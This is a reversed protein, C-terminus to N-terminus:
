DASLPEECSTRVVFSIWRVSTFREDRRSGRMLPGVSRLVQPRQGLPAPRLQFTVGFLPRERPPHAFLLLGAVGFRLAAIDWANLHTAVALRTVASWSAWISAAACGFVAGKVYQSKAPQMPSELGCARRDSPTVARDVLIGEVRRRERERFARQSPICIEEVGRRRPTAQIAKVLQSMQAAFPNGPLLPGPNVYRCLRGAAASKRFRVRQQLSGSEFWRNRKLYEGDPDDRTTEASREM